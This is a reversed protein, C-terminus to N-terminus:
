VGCSYNQKQCFRLLRFGDERSCGFVLGVTRKKVHAADLNEELDYDCFKSWGFDVSIKWESDVSSVQALDTSLM